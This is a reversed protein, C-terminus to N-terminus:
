SPPKGVPGDPRLLCAVGCFKHRKGCWGDVPTKVEIM